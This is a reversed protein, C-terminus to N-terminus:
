HNTPPPSLLQKRLREFARPCLRMREVPTRAATTRKNQKTQLRHPRRAHLPPAVLDIIWTQQFHVSRKEVILIQAPACARGQCYRAQWHPAHTKKQNAHLRHSHRDSIFGSQSPRRLMGVPIAIRILRARIKPETTYQVCIHIATAPPTDVAPNPGVVGDSCLPASLQACDCGVNRVCACCVYGCVSHECAKVRARARINARACMNQQRTEM